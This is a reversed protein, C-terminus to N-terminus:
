EMDFAVYLLKGEREVFLAVPDGRKMPELAGRLAEVTSVIVGNVEHIVDGIQLGSVGARPSETRAAVVVGYEGRLNPFMSETRKDVAIGLIGLRPIQSRDPDALGALRDTAHQEEVAAVELLVTEGGRSLQLQVRDSTDHTLMAMMFMPVNHVPRGDVAVVIDNLKLGAAEAPGGPVVDSIVVGSDRPLKLAAALPMTIAQVGAGILPRHIHGYKRLQGSVLQILPSPISFGIGESGGSQTLIFTNLGVIEGATNVLPGGSDGPNISADTQIYIFPSDPDPQRAISSVVGMSLSDHLGEPSGFAFVVQGQRLKDYDAFRLAPLGSAAIKILALDAEKFVGILTAEQMPALPHALVDTITQAGPTRLSVRIRQADAVVHANTVIYGDADVIVGSGISEQRGVVFATRTAPSENRAGYRTVVIHVVSPSVRAALAEVADSFQDLIEFSNKKDAAEACLTLLVTILLRRLPLGSQM